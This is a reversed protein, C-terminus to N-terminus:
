FFEFKRDYECVTQKNVKPRNPKPQTKQPSSGKSKIIRKKRAKRGKKRGGSAVGLLDALKEEETQAKRVPVANAKRQNSSPNDNSRNSSFISTPDAATITVNNYSDAANSIAQVGDDQDPGPDSDRGVHDGWPGSRGGFGGGGVKKKLVENVPEPESPPAPRDDPYPDMGGSYPDTGPSDVAKVQLGSQLDQAASRFHSLTVRFTFM